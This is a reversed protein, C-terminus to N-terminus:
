GARGIDTVVWRTGDHTANLVDGNAVKEEFTSGPVKDKSYYGGKSIGYQILVQYAGNSAEVFSVKTADITLLGGVVWGGAEYAAPIDRFVNNCRACSQETVAQVLSADGTEQMYNYAAYWYRTFADLGQESFEDALAPKEPKPVNEAPGNADAPKYVATPTPSASSSSASASPPSTSSSPAGGAGTCASAGLLLGAVATFRFVKTLVM